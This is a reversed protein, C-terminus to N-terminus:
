FKFTTGIPVHDSGDIKLLIDSSVINDLLEKSCIVYDIRLQCTKGVGYTVRDIIKEKKTNLIDWTDIWNYTSIFNNFNNREEPTTGAINYYKNSMDNDKSAVNLDGTWIVNKYENRLETLLSYLDVDWRITRYALRLLPDDRKVGSNPCYTGVVVIEKNENNSYNSSSDAYKSVISLCKDSCRCNNNLDQSCCTDPNRNERMGCKCNDDCKTGNDCATDCRCNNNVDLSCCGDFNWDVPTYLTYKVVLIRGETIHAKKTEIDLQEKSIKKIIHNNKSNDPEDKYKSSTPLTTNLVKVNKFINKKYIIAIGHWFSTTNSNFICIYKNDIKDLVDAENKKQIKTETVVLIDINHDNLLSNVNDIKNRISNINWTYISIM